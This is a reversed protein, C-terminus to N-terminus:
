QWARGRRECALQWPVINSHHEAESVLVKDGKGVFKQVFSSALLNFSATAGSTFIIEERSGAGIFSRVAERGKEYLDTAEASLHHVARHINANTLSSIRQQLELVGAPKQSTAANDFYVLKKGFVDQGLAPFLNRINEM